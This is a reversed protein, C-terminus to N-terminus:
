GEIASLRSLPLDPTRVTVANGTGALILLALAALGLKSVVKSYRTSSM